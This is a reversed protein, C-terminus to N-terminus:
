DAPHHPRLQAFGIVGRGDAEVVLFPFGAGIARLRNYFSEDVHTSPYAAFSNDVFYNFVATVAEKDEEEVDRIIYDM